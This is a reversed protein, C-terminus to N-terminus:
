YFIGQSVQMSCKNNDTPKVNYYKSSELEEPGDFASVSEDRTNRRKTKGEGIKPRDRSNAASMITIDKTLSLSFSPM